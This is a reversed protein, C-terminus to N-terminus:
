VVISAMLILAIVLLVIFAIGQNRPGLSSILAGFAAVTYAFLNIGLYRLALIILALFILKILIEM